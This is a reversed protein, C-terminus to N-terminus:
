SGWLRKRTAIEEIKIKPAWFIAFIQVWLKDLPNTKFNGCMKLNKRTKTLILLKKTWIKSKINHELAINSRKWSLILSRNTQHTIKVSEIRNPLKLTKTLWRNKFARKLLWETIWLILKAVKIELEDGLQRLNWCKGSSKLDRLLDRTRARMKIGIKVAVSWLTTCMVQEDPVQSFNPILRM